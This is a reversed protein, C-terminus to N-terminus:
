FHYGAESLPTAHGRSSLGVTVALGLLVAVVVILV